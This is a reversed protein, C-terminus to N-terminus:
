HAEKNQRTTTLLRIDAASFGFLGEPAFVQQFDQPTFFPEFKRAFEDLRKVYYATNEDPQAAQWMEALRANSFATVTASHGVVYYTIRDGKRVPQGSTATRQKALEYTAARSRRGAAVDAEYQALTDKLTETRAFAAVTWDHQMIREYTAIYLDHLAQVNEELLLAIAAEVFQRGFREVSRSIM